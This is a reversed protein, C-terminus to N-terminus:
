ATAVSDNVGTGRSGAVTPRETPAPTHTGGELTVGSIYVHPPELVAFRPVVFTFGQFMNVCQVM